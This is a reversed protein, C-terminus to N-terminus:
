AKILQWTWLNSIYLLLFVSFFLFYAAPWRLEVNFFAVFLHLSLYFCFLCKINSYSCPFKTAATLFHSINAAVLTFILPLLFLSYSTRCKRMFRTVLVNRSTWTTTSCFLPLSIYLFTHQVHLTAKKCILCITTKQGNGNGEGGLM